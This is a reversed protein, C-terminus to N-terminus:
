LLTHDELLQRLAAGIKIFAEYSPPKRFYGAGLRASESRDDPSDSSTIIIVPLDKYKESARIRRLVGFGDVKPLNLDLLMLHPRPADPNQEAKELFEIAREGDLAVHVDLPLKENRIAERVLLADPLNDEALLLNLRQPVPEALSNRFPSTFPREKEPPPTPGSEDAMVSLCAGVYQWDSVLAALSRTVIFDNSYGLSRRRTNHTLALGTTRYPFVGPQTLSPRASMSTPTRENRYKLANSVLNQFVQQFHTEGTYVEPLADFTVTAGSERIAEALSELAHKLVEMSDVCTVNGEVVGRTYALWVADGKWSSDSSSSGTLMWFTM